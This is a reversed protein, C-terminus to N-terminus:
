LYTVRPDINPTTTIILGKVAMKIARSKNHGESVLSCYCDLVPFMPISTLELQFREPTSYDLFISASVIRNQIELNASGILHGTDNKVPIPNNFEVECEDYLIKREIESLDDLFFVDATREFLKASEQDIVKEITPVIEEIPEVVDIDFDNM